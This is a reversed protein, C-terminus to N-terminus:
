GSPTYKYRGPKIIHTSSAVIQGDCIIANIKTIIIAIMKFMLM